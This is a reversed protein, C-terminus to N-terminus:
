EFPKDIVVSCLHFDSQIVSTKDDMLKSPNDQQSVFSSEWYATEKQVKLYIIRETRVEHVVQGYPLVISWIHIPVRIM